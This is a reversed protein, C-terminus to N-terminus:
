VLNSRKIAFNLKSLEVIREVLNCFWDESNPALVIEDILGQRQVMIYLGPNEFNNMNKGSCEEETYPIGKMSVCCPSKFSMTVIRIEQEHEFRQDKIFAREHAQHALHTPMEYSELKVYKVKGIQSVHPDESVGIFTALKRVTSKVAVGGVVGVYEDWMKQSENEDLFWCNVVTLERGDEINKDPLNEIQRHLEPTNFMSKLDEYELRMAKETLPLIGGEYKDQLIKLKSFWLAQYTLLSIFKPFTLYRWVTLDYDADTLNKHNTIRMTEPASTYPRRM